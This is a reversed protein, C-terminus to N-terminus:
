YPRAGTADFLERLEEAAAYSHSAGPDTWALADQWPAPGGATYFAREARALAVLHARRRARTAREVAAIAPDAGLEAVFDDRELLAATWAAVAEDFARSPAACMAWPLDPWSAALMAHGLEHLVVRLVGRATAGPRRWVRVRVDARPEIVFTRGAVPADAMVVEITIAHADVEHRSAVREVLGRPDALAREFAPPDAMESPRNESPSDPLQADDDGAVVRALAWADPFGLRQAVANRADRAAVLRAETRDTPAVGRAPDASAAQADISMRWLRTARQGPEGPLVRAAALVPRATLLSPPSAPLTAWPDEATAAWWGRMADGVERAVKAELRDLELELGFADM